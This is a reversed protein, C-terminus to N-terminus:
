HKWHQNQLQYQFHDYKTKQHTELNDLYLSGGVLLWKGYLRIEEIKPEPQVNPQIVEKKCSFLFLSIAVSLYIFGKMNKLKYQM